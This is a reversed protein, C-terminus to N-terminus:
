GLKSIINELSENEPMTEIHTGYYQEIEHMMSMDDATALNIAVGKRSPRGGWGVRYMYKEPKSPLDFNVILLIQQTDIGRALLDTTILIRSSGSRFGEMIECRLCADMDGHMSSVTLGRATLKDTLWELKKRTSCFIITQFSEMTKYIQSLIDLKSDENEAAIYFQKVGEIIPATKVIIRVFDRKFKAELVLVDGPMTTSVLLAQASQPLFSFIDEIQEEFGRALLDDVGDLVFMKIDDIRFVGREIMNQVRGPTGIVIQADDMLVGIEERPSKCVHTHVDMFDGIADMLNHIEQALVRSPVLVLAQCAKVNPDIRQLISICFAVTKGTKSQAQAIVNHGEIMPKIARKQIASPNEFGYAYVGRLLNSELAMDDFTETIDDDKSKVQTTELSTGDM